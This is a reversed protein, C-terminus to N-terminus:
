QASREQKLRVVLFFTSVWHVSCRLRQSPLRRRYIAGGLTEVLLYRLGRHHLSLSRRFQVMSCVINGAAARVASGGFLTRGGVIVTVIGFVVAVVAALIVWPPRSPTETM